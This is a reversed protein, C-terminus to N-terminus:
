GEAGDDAPTVQIVDKVVFLPRQKTEIVIRGIYEGLASIAILQVSGLITVVVITAAFGPVAIGFFIKQVLIVLGLCISLLAAVLGILGIIRLPMITFSTIGDIGLDVLRFRSWKSDGHMRENPTYPIGAQRFGVWAYIGKMFREREPLSLIADAVRRTILRFDTANPPIRVRNAGNIILYFLRSMMRRAASDGIREAQYAYVVDYGDDLWSAVFREVMDHPHQLDADMIVVADAGSADLGAMIAAEKGFNRSLSVLQVPLDAQANAVIIEASGDDSGDDVLTASVELQRNAALDRALDALERLLAPISAAENYVPVVFELSRRGAVAPKAGARDRVTELPMTQDAPM